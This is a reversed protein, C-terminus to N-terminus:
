KDLLEVSKVGGTEGDITFRIHATSPLGINHQYGAPCDGVWSVRISPRYWAEKFSIVANVLTDPKPKPEPKIRYEYPDFWSPFRTDFWEGAVKTQIEAGDAWAKILDAYKLPKKVRCECNSCNDKCM